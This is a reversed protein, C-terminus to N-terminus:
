RTGGVVSLECVCRERIIANRMRDARRVGCISRKRNEKQEEDGILADFARNTTPTNARMAEIGKKKKTRRRQIEKKDGKKINKRM